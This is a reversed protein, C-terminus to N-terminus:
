QAPSPGAEQPRGPGPQPQPKPKSTSPSSAPAVAGGGGTPSPQPPRAAASAPAESTAPPKVPGTARQEVASAERAQAEDMPPRESWVLLVQRGQGLKAAPTVVAEKFHGGPTQHISEVRAVPYGAPFRGGLASSV